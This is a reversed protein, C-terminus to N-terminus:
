QMGHHPDNSGPEEPVIGSLDQKYANNEAELLSSLASATAVLKPTTREAAAAKAREIFTRAAKPVFVAYADGKLTKTVAEVEDTALSVEAVIKEVDAGEKGAVLAEFAAKARVVALRSKQAPAAELKPPFAKEWLPLAEGLEKTVADLKEFGKKINSHLERGKAFDDKENEKKAYYDGADSLAQGLPPGVEVVADLAKDLEEHPPKDATAAVNCIRALRMYVHAPNGSKVEPAGLDPIKPGPRDKGLSKEYGARVLGLTQLGVYCREAHFAKMVMPDAPKRAKPPEKPRPPAQAPRASPPAGTAGATTGSGAGTPAAKEGCGAIALVFFGCCLGTKM